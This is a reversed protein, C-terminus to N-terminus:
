VRHTLNYKEILTNVNSLRTDLPPGLPRPEGRSKPGGRKRMGPCAGTVGDYKEKINRWTLNKDDERCNYSMNKWLLNM